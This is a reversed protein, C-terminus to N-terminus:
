KESTESRNHSTAVVLQGEALRSAWMGSLLIRDLVRRLRVPIWRGMLRFKMSGTICFTNYFSHAVVKYGEEKLYHKLEQKTFLFLHGDADPQYQYQELANWDDIQSATPLKSRLFSGNPTTVILVGNRKLLRKLVMLARDPHAVHEIVECFLIVDFINQKFPLVELSAAVPWVNGKDHKLMMYTLFEYKLDVSLVKFGREALLLSLNGQACGLDLVIGKRCHKEIANLIMNIRTRYAVSAWDSQNPNHWEYMDHEFLIRHSHPSSAFNYFPKEV